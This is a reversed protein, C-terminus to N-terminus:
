LRQFILWLVITYIIVFLVPLLFKTQKSGAPTATPPVASAPQPSSSQFNGPTTSPQAAPSSKAESSSSKIPISKVPSPSAPNVTAAPKEKEQPSTDEQKKGSSQYKKLIEDMDSKQFIQTANDILRRQIAEPLAFAFLTESSMPAGGPSTTQAQPEVKASESPTDGAAPQVEAPSATAVDPRAANPMATNLKKEEEAM